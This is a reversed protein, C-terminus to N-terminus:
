LTVLPVKITSTLSPPLPTAEAVTDISFVPVPSDLDAVDLLL